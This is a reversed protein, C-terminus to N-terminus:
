RREAFSVELRITHGDGISFTGRIGALARTGSGPVIYGESHPEEGPAAIGVHQFVCSGEHGEIRGEFRETVVYGAGRAPDDLACFLGECRATGDLGGVYRKQFSVRSLTPGRDPEDYAAAAWSSVHFTALSQDM